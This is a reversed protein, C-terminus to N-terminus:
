AEGEIQDRNEEYNKIMQDLLARLQKARPVPIAIRALVDIEVREIKRVRELNERPDGSFLPPSVQGVTILLAGSEIQIGFQNAFMILANDTPGWELPVAVGVEAADQKEDSIM